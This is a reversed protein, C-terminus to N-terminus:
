TKCRSLGLPAIRFPIRSMIHLQARTLKLKKKLSCNARKQTSRTAAQEQLEEEGRADLSGSDRQISAILDMYSYLNAEIHHYVPRSVTDCLFFILFFIVFDITLVLLGDWVEFVGKSTGMTSLTVATPPLLSCAFKVGSNM